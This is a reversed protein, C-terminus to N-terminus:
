SQYEKNFKYGSGYTGQICKYGVKKNISSIHVRLTNETIMFKETILRVPIRLRSNKMYRYIDGETDTLGYSDIKKETKYIREVSGKSVNHLTQIKSIHIGIRIDDAIARKQSLTLHNSVRILNFNTSCETCRYLQIGNRVGQKNTYRSGCTPCVPNDRRRPNLTYKCGCKKCKVRTTEVLEEQGKYKVKETGQKTYAPCGCKPCEKRIM